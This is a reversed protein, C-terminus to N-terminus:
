NIHIFNRYRAENSNLCFVFNLFCSLKRGDLSFPFNAERARRHWKQYGFLNFKIDLLFRKKPRINLERISQLLQKCDVATTPPSPSTISHCLLSPKTTDKIRDTRPEFKLHLLAWHRFNSCTFQAQAAPIFHFHDNQTNRLWGAASNDTENEM